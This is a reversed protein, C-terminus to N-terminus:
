HASGPPDEGLIEGRIVPGDRHPAPPEDEDHIVAGPFVQVGAPIDGRQRARRALYAHGLRRAFPRTFPLLLLLGAVDTLFGPVLLLVGGAMLYPTEALERDPLQGTSLSERLARWARRGERRVLWAGALSVAVLLLATPWAGIASGVGIIVLIELVPLLLLLALIPVAM